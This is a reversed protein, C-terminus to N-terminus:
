LSNLIEPSVEEFDRYVRGSERNLVCTCYDIDNKDLMYDFFKKQEKKDLGLFEDNISKKERISLNKYLCVHSLLKRLSLPIMLYSQVILVTSLSLHRSTSFLKILSRQVNKDRLSVGFDDIILLNQHLSVKPPEPDEEKEKEEKEKSEEEFILSKKPHSKNKKREAERKEWEEREIVQAKNNRCDNMIEELVESNFETITRPHDKFPHKEVSDVSSQPAIFWVRHFAKNFVGGPMVSKQSWLVSKGSGPKGIVALRSGTERIPFYKPLRNIFRDQKEKLLESSFFKSM